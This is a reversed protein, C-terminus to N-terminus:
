SAGRTVRDLPNDHMTLERKVRDDHDLMERVLPLLARALSQLMAVDQWGGSDLAHVHSTLSGIRLDAPDM